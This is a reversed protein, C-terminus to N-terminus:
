QWIRPAAPLMLVCANAGARAGCGGARAGKRAGARRLVGAGAGAGAKGSREVYTGNWTYKGRGCRGANQGRWSLRFTPSSPNVTSLSDTLNSHEDRFVLHQKFISTSREARATQCCVLSSNFPRDRIPFNETHARVRATGQRTQVFSNLPFGLNFTFESRQDSSKRPNSSRTFRVFRDTNTSLQEFM